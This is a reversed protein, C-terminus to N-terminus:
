GNKLHPVCLLPWCRPSQPQTGVSEAYTQISTTVMCQRNFILVAASMRRHDRAARRQRPPSRDVRGAESGKGDVYSGKGDVYSAKGDM